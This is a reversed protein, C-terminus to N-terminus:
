RCLGKPVSPAAPKPVLGLYKLLATAQRTDSPAVPMTTTWRLEIRRLDRSAPIPARLYLTGAEVMRSAVLQGNVLLTLHQETGALVQACLILDAKGGSALAVYSEQELWGDKFIGFYRLGALDSPFTRISLPPAAQAPRAREETRDLRTRRARTTLLERALLEVRNIESAGPRPGLKHLAAYLSRAEFLKSDDSVFDTSDLWHHRLDREVFNEIASLTAPTVPRDLFTALLEVQARLDDFYNEYFVLMRQSGSTHLFAHATIHFWLDLWSWVQPWRRGELAGDSTFGEFSASIEAPNRVCIVYRMDPVLEQWFPLTLSMRPDKVGWLPSGGFCNELLDRARQKLPALESSREWGPELLPPNAYEGGMMALVYDNLDAVEQREWYGKVNHPNGGILGAEPGFNVNLLNLTRATLSSGSRGSGLVCVPREAWGGM